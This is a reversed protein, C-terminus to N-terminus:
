GCMASIGQNKGPRASEAFNAAEFQFDGSINAGETQGM